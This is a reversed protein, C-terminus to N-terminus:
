ESFPVGFILLTSKPPRHVKGIVQAERGMANWLDLAVDNMYLIRARDPTDGREMYVSITNAMPTQGSDVLYPWMSISPSNETGRLQDVTQWIISYNLSTSRDSLEVM